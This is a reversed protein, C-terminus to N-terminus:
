NLHNVFNDILRGLDRRNIEIREPRSQRLNSTLVHLLINEDRMKMLRQNYSEIWAVRQAAIPSHRLLTVEQEGRKVINNWRATLVPASELDALVTIYHAVEGEVMKWAEELSHFINAHTSPYNNIDDITYLTMSPLLRMSDHFDSVAGFDFLIKNTGFNFSDLLLNDV